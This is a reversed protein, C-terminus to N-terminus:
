SLLSGQKLSFSHFTRSTVKLLFISMTGIWASIVGHADLLAWLEDEYLMEDMGMMGSGEAEREYFLCGGLGGRM